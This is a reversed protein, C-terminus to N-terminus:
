AAVGCRLSLAVPRFALPSSSRQNASPASPRPRREPRRSWLTLGADTRGRFLTCCVVFSMRAGHEPSEFM